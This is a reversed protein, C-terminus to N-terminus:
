KLNMQMTRLLLEYHAKTSGSASGVRQKMLSQAKLVYSYIDAQSVRPTAFRNLPAWEFGGVPNHVEHTAESHAQCCSCASTRHTLDLIPEGALATAQKIKFGGTEMMMYIYQKQLRMQADTLAKGALTPKWVFNYVMNFADPAKFSDKNMGEYTSVSIPLPLIQRMMFNEITMKPSGTISIKSLLAKNDLWDLDNYIEFLYNLAEKQYQTSLPAFRPLEDGKKIENIYCGGINGVVHTVYMALQEIAGTLLEGRKEYTEDGEKIWSDLNEVIYKLNKIGYKTAKIADDGLDETQSRPDVVSYLQQKGYRYVPNEKVADTIWRTTIPAEEEVSNVNLVPTYTWRVLYQDYIGFRPPTLKVGREKDGPQAVYNFRAYDMISTTTGYKQTYAASRLSDVPVVSSGSMNHMFGLCHGIEHALVYRLADGLIHDPINTTRVDKDAQATQVFLWNSILKIVDHYVYVSAMLIEGTRPDTWSPGMANKINTPAYRVCSYKINDPDFEPDDTPFDKAVIVDKFGITAFMENWQNVGERLYPKWSEPFTNDIYFVIPKVPAVKEGRLFAATDSPQLDWRNAYYIPATTKADEGLQQRPTFFVGIRYDAMRPRYPKEKLLMISRTMEATFPQNKILARGSHDNVNFTYSLTSKISVNDSFAKIGSIFSCDSKYSETRKLQGYISNTDFPTLKKNDGLFFGTMDFVVATSDNNYAAIKLNELIASQNSKRLAEDIQLNGSIYDTSVERLQVHTKNRTFAVHLPTTPKSGVVANGNDSITTVTSGILMEKGFLSIPFEFYVKGDLQHLTFLGKATEHKKKFLKEYETEKKEPAKQETAVKKKKWFFPFQRQADITASSAVVMTALILVKKRM